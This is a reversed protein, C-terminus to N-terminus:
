VCFCYFSVSLSHYTKKWVAWNLPDEPDNDGLFEGRRTAERLAQDTPDTTGVQKESTSSDLYDSCKSEQAESRSTEQDGSM